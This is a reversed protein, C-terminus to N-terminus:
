AALRQVLAIRGHELTIVRSPKYLAGGKHSACIVTANKAYDAIASAAKRSTLDDLHATPEDLLYLPARRILARTLAVRQLEGGSLGFGNEGLITDAYGSAGLRQLLSSVDNPDADPSGQLVNNRVTGSFLKPRQPMWGIRHRWADPAYDALAIGDILITGSDPTLFGLLLNILTTKGSGSIGRLLIHEGPAIDLNLSDLILKDGHRFTVDKFSIRPPIACTLARASIVPELVLPRIRAAAGLAAVKTHYATSLKRLPLYFEPALLLVFLGEYLPMDRWLLRFGVMVAIMAISVTAFFEMALSSLFAIRLVAMTDKRYQDCLARLNRGEGAVAGFMRLTPLAQIADLFRGSMFSLRFWQRQSLREAGQGIWVMFIPLLPATVLLVLASLPDIPLICIFIMIPTIAALQRTPVTQAYYNHLAEIGDTYASLVTGATDNQLACPGRQKLTTVLRQRLDAKIRLAADRGAADGAYGFGARFVFLTGLAALYPALDGLAAKDVVISTLIYALLAAGTIILVSNVCGFVTAARLLKRVPKAQASLFAADPDTKTRM